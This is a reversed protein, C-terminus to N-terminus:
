QLWAESLFSTSPPNGSSSPQPEADLVVCLIRIWEDSRNSWSLISVAKTLKFNKFHVASLDIFKRMCPVGNFLLKELTASQKLLKKIHAKAKKLRLPILQLLSFPPDM